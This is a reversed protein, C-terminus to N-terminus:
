YRVRKKRVVVKWGSEEEEREKEVELACLDWGAGGHSDAEVANVGTGTKEPSAEGAEGSGWEVAGLSAQNGSVWPCM